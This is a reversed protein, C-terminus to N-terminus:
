EAGETTEVVEVAGKTRLSEYEDTPLVIESGKPFSEGNFRINTLTKTTVDKPAAKRAAM